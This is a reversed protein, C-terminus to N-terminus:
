LSEFLVCVPSDGRIEGAFSLLGTQKDRRFAVLNNSHQNAVVLMEGDPTLSFNRPWNGKVQQHSILKLSKGSKDVQYIALSNHGRNSAYLFRGDNSIHIDACYNVEIYEEPLTSVSNILQWSENTKAIISVTSNLENIVYMVEKSPHFTLHRPGAGAEVLLSDIKLLQNDKIKYFILQDIGLDVAVVENENLMWASHAHPGTQRDTISKGSHQGVALLDSLKGSADVRLYGINGGSYNAMLVDGDASALVHCPHAGGSLSTSLHSLGGNTIQYSEVTGTGEIDVESVALLTQQSNAFCLFSPNTTEAVLQLSDFTGDSKLVGKYIGKSDGDTYTGLYFPYNKSEEKATCAMLLGAMLMLHIIKKM